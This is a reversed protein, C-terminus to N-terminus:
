LLSHKRFYDIAQAIGDTSLSRGDPSVFQPAVFGDDANLIDALDAFHVGSDACVQRIWQNAEAILGATLGDAGPYDASVSAISCCIIQVESNAKQVTSILKKYGSIFDERSASALNDGGIYIVVRKPMYVSVATSVNVVSGDPLLLEPNAANEAPLGAGPDTWVQVVAANGAVAAYDRLAYFSKDCIYTMSLAYELGADQTSNLERVTGGPLTGAPSDLGLIDTSQKVGDKGIVLDPEAIPGYYSKTMPIVLGVLLAALAAVIALAWIINKIASLANNM